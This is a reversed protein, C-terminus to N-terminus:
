NVPYICHKPEHFCSGKQPGIIGNCWQEFHLSVKTLMMSSCTPNLKYTQKTKRTIRTTEFLHCCSLQMQLIWSSYTNKEEERRNTFSTPKWNILERLCIPDTVQM